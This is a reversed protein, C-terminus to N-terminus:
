FWTSCWPEDSTRFLRDAERLAGARHETADGALTADVLRTGGLYAAGLARVDITLDADAETRTCTAAGDRVELRYRGAAPGPAGGLEDLVELVLSADHEYTRAALTAEIDLLRV